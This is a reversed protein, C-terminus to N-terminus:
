VVKGKSRQSEDGLCKSPSSSFCSSGKRIDRVAKALDQTSSQKILYGAAGMTKAQKIYEPDPHASLILVKASPSDKMIQRTAQLGNMLPMALDM